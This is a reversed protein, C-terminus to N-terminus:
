HTNRKFSNKSPNYGNNQISTNLMIPITGMPAGLRRFNSDQTLTLRAVLRFELLSKFQDYSASEVSGQLISSIQPKKIVKSVGTERLVGCM